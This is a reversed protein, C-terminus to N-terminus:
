ALCVAIASCRGPSASQRRQTAACNARLRSNRLARSEDCLIWSFLTSLTMDRARMAIVGGLDLIQSRALELSEM